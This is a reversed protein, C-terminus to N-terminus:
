AKVIARVARREARTERSEFYREREGRSWDLRRIRLFFFDDICRGEEFREGDTSTTPGELFEYKRRIM